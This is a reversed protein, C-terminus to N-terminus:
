SLIFSEKLQWAMPSIVTFFLALGIEIYSTISYNKSSLRTSVSPTDRFYLLISKQSLYWDLQSAVM